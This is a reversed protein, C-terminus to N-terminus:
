ESVDLIQWWLLLFAGCVCIWEDLGLVDQRLEAGVYLVGSTGVLLEELWCVDRRHEARVEADDDRSGHWECGAYFVAQPAPPPRCM